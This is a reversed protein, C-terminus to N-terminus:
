IKVPLSTKDACLMRAERMITQLRETKIGAGLLTKENEIIDRCLVIGKELLLQKESRTVSLLCTLPYLASQDILDRLNEKEPYNWGVLHLGMCVAYQIADKSFKTNTVVWGEPHMAKGTESIDSWAREIDAYRSQIYLPIKVDCINGISNHYKCEIIYRKDEKEAVIDVEHNVCHGKVIQDIQVSFGQYALIKAYYKEFPYGSPGLEMIAQKLKYRSAITKSRTRLMGFAMRYIKSSLIGDYLKQKVEEVVQQLIEESAGSRHLSKMLKIESFPVIAGSAKKIEIPNAEM